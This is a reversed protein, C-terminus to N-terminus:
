CWQFLGSEESFIEVVRFIEVVVSVVKGKPFLKFGEWFIEVEKFFNSDGEGDQYYRLFRQFLM